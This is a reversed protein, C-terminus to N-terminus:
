AKGAVQIAEAQNNEVSFFLPSLCSVALLSPIIISDDPFLVTAESTDM